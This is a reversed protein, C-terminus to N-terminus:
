IMEIQEGTAISVSCLRRLLSVVVVFPVLYHSFEPFLRLFSKWKFYSILYKESQTRMKEEAMKILVFHPIDHNFLFIRRFPKKERLLEIDCM